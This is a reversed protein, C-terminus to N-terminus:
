AIPLKVSFTSGRGAGESHVAISGGHLEVLHRAIALGLGVGSHSRTTSTDAQRFREFVHPLFQPEIGRGTDEVVITLAQPARSAVLRVVGGDPTFKIGNQLLNWVIQQLRSPDARVSGLAPEGQWELRVGKADALPKVADLAARLASAVDVDTLDLRLRGAVARSIDLLDEVLTAQAAANREIVELARGHQDAPLQGKRLMSAWGVIANLPTRLEHSIVALFEDKAYNAARLAEESARLEAAIREANHRARIETRTLAFLALSFVAGGAGILLVVAGTRSNEFGPTSRVVVTWLRGAVRMTRRVEFQSPSEFDPSAHLPRAERSAGDFVAFALHREAGAAITRLLDGGRFPSYVFGLLMKRRDDPTGPVGGGSYVPLYILFGTQTAAPEAREQVLEVAGSAAPAGTDRARAMAERRVPESWMNYGLALRNRPDMPELYLIAHVEDDARDPWYAFDLGRARVRAAMADREHPKVLRTFGIGQVGPYRDPVELRGVYASFEAPRVDDSAAFLGAAGRLMAIYAELRSEISFRLSDAANEFRLRAEEVSTRHASTAIAATVALGATLILYPVVLV